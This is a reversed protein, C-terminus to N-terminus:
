RASVWYRAGIRLGTLRTYVSRLEQTVGGARFRDFALAGFNFAAEASWHGHPRWQGGVGVWPGLKVSSIDILEEYSFHRRAMGAEAFPRWAAGPRGTYRVGLEISGIEFDVDDMSVRRRHSAALLGLRPSTAFAIELRPSVGTHNRSRGSVDSTTYGGVATLAMSLGTGAPTLTQANASAATLALLAIELFVKRMGTM